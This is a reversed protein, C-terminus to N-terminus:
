ASPDASIFSLLTVVCAIWPQRRLENAVSSFPGPFTAPLRTVSGPFSRLFSPLFRFSVFRFSLSPFRLFFLLKPLHAQRVSPPLSRSLYAQRRRPPAVRPPPESRRESEPASCVLSYTAVQNGNTQESATRLLVRHSLLASKKTTALLNYYLLHRLRKHKTNRAALYTYQAAASCERRGANQQTPLHTPNPLNRERFCFCCDQTQRDLTLM